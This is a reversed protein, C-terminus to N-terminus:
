AWFFSFHLMSWQTSSWPDISRRPFFYIKISHSYKHLVLVLLNFIVMYNWLQQWVISKIMITPSCFEMIIDYKWCPHNYYGWTIVQLIDWHSVMKHVTIGIFYAWLPLISFAWCYKIVYKLMNNDRPINHNQIAYLITFDLLRLFQKFSYWLPSTHWKFWPYIKKSFIAIMLREPYIGDRISAIVDCPFPNLRVSQVM